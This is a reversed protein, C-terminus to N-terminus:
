EDMRQNHQDDKRLKSLSSNLMTHMMCVITDLATNRFQSRADSHTLSRHISLAQGAKLRFQAGPTAVRSLVSVFAPAEIALM